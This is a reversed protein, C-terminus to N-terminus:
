EPDSPRVVAVGHHDFYAKAQQEFRARYGSDQQSVWKFDAKIGAKMAGPLSDYKILTLAERYLPIVSDSYFGMWDRCHAQLETAGEFNCEGSLATQVDNFHQDLAALHDAAGASDLQLIALEVAGAEGFVPSIVSACQTYCAKIGDVDVSPQPEEPTCSALIAFAGFAIALRRYNGM